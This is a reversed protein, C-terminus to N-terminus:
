NSWYFIQSCKNALYATRGLGDTNGTKSAITIIVAMLLFEGMLNVNFSQLAFGLASIYIIILNASVRHIQLTEAFGCSV